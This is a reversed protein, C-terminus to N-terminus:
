ENPCPLGYGPPFDLFYVHLCRSDSSSAFPIYLSQVTALVTIPSLPVMWSDLCYYFFIISSKAEFASWFILMFSAGSPEEQEILLSALRMCEHGFVLCWVGDSFLM